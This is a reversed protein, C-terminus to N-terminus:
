EVFTKTATITKNQGSNEQKIRDKKWHIRYQGKERVISVMM